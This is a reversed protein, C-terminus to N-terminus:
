DEKLQWLVVKTNIIDDISDALVSMTFSNHNADFCDAQTAMYITDAIMKKKWDEASSAAGTTSQVVIILKDDTKPAIAFEGNHKNQYILRLSANAVSPIDKILNKIINTIM